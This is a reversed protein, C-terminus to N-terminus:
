SGGALVDFEVLRRMWEGRWDDGHEQRYDQEAQAELDIPPSALMRTVSAASRLGLFRAMAEAQSAGPCVTQAKVAAERFDDLAATDLSSLDIRQAQIQELFALRRFIDRNM